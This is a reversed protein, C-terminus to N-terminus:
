KKVLYVGVLLFVIGLIRKTTIEIVDGGFIAFRDILTAM